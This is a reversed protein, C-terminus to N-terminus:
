IPLDELRIDSMRASESRRESRSLQDDGRISATRIPTIELPTVFQTEDTMDDVPTRIDDPENKQMRGRAEPIPITDPLHLRALKEYEAFSMMVLEPEENEMFIIKDGNEKILKKIKSLNM